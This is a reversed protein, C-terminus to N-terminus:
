IKLGDSQKRDALHQSPSFNLVTQTGVHRSSNRSNVSCSLLLAISFCDQTGKKPEKKPL